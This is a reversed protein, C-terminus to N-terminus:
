PAAALIRDILEVVGAGREGATVLNAVAKLGPLANAVAVALGSARLLPADNEADGVGAVEAPNVGLEALAARLGSAKDVGEPLVMVARKNPIVRLPLGLERIIREVTPGHPEWTAVVVRGVAIPGVGAACLAAVFEDPPRGALARGAGSRPDVLWGGNELVVRDFRDLGPCTAALEDLVRGTVLVARRGSDRWRGLASWTDAAVVGRDAITGDYDTALLRIRALATPGGKVSDIM